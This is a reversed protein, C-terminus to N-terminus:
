LGGRVRAWSTLLQERPSVDLPALDYDSLTASDILWAGDELRLLLQLSDAQANPDVVLALGAQAHIYIAASAPDFGDFAGVPCDDTIAAIPDDADSGDAQVFRFDSGALAEIAQADCATSAAAVADAAASVEAILQTAETPDMDPEPLAVKLGFFDVRRFRWEGAERRMMGTARGEWVAWSWNSTAWATDEDGDLGLIVRPSSAVYTAAPPVLGLLGNMWAEIALLGTYRLAEGWLSPEAQETFVGAFGNADGAAVADAMDTIRADIIFADKFRENAILPMAFLALACACALLRAHRRVTALM